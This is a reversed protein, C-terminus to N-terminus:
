PEVEKRPLPEASGTGREAAARREIREALLALPVARPGDAGLRHGKALGAGALDRRVVPEGGPAELIPLKGQAFGTIALEVAPGGRPAIGRGAGAPELFLLVREDPLISPAGPVTVAVPVARDLDVGGPIVVTVEGVPDGKLVRDVRISALTVLSGDRWETRVADCVGTVVLTSRDVLQDDELPALTTATVPVAVLLIAAAAALAAPLALAPTSCSSPCM